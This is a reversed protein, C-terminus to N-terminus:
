KARGIENSTRMDVLQHIKAMARALSISNEAARAPNWKSNVFEILLPNYQTGQIARSGPAPLLGRKWAAKGHRRVLNLLCQKPDPEHEPNVPLKRVPVGAAEHFSERDALIWAETERVAVCFILGDPRHDPQRFWKQLLAPPCEASDLDTVLLVPFSRAMSIFRDVNTKLYGAGTKGFSLIEPERSGFERLLRLMVAESLSDETAVAIAM